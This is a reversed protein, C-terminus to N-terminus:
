ESGGSTAPAWSLTGNPHEETEESEADDFSFTQGNRAVCDEDGQGLRDDFAVVAEFVGTAEYATRQSVRQAHMTETRAIRLARSDVKAGASGNTVYDRIRRELAAVGEGAAKGDSLASFLASRTQGALDVLGVQKGGAKLVQAAITDAKKGLDIGLQAHLTKLVSRAVTDYHRGYEAGFKTKHWKGVAALKIVRDAVAGERATLPEPGDGKTKLWLGPRAKAQEAAWASAIHEGHSEFLPVLRKAFGAELQRADADFKQILRAQQVRSLRKVEDSAVTIARMTKGEPDAESLDIGAAELVARLTELATTIDDTAGGIADANRQSLVRGAKLAVATNAHKVAPHVVHAKPPPEGDAAATAVAGDGAAAEDDAVDPMAEAMTSGAPVEISALPRFFVRHSDDVPYDQAERWEALEIAGATLQRTLRDSKKDADEQLVRVEELNFDVVYLTPEDTFDPLLQHEITEAKDTLGPIVKEEYAVERAEAFNAFTSRDLGAGLGCVIAPVGIVATVREEPLRRLIKLDMQQPNFGFQQLRTPRTFVLPEGRNDGTTAQKIKRKTEILDDDGAPVFAGGGTDTEPSMVIGPVGMNKLLAASFNAAENDTFIERLLCQFANLGKAPNDPDLGDRFHVVDKVDVRIPVGNPSYEYYDVLNPSGDERVPNMLTHPTWWLQVVAGHPNRVKLWYANSDLALSVETAKRMTRGSYFPNPRKLLELLRAPGEDGDATDGPLIATLSQKADYKRIRVPAEASNRALWLLPAMVIASGTGDGVSRSYDYRTGPLLMGWANAPAFVMRTLAAKIGRFPATALTRARSKAMTAM